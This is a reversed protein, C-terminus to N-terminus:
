ATQRNATHKYLITKPTGAAISPVAAPRVSHVAFADRPHRWMALSRLGQLPSSIQRREEVGAYHPHTALQQDSANLLHRLAALTDLAVRLCPQAGM